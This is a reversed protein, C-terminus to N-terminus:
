TALEDQNLELYIRMLSRDFDDNSIFDRGHLVQWNDVIILNNDWKIRIIKDVQLKISANIKQVLIRAAKNSPFMCNPDFRIHKMSNNINITTYFNKQPTKCLFIADKMLNNIYEDFDDFLNKFPIILTDTQSKKMTKMVILRAPQHWFATDTHLPFDQFGYVSSFTGRYKSALDMKKPHIIDVLNMNPHRIPKGLTTAFSLLDGIDISNFDVQAWGNLLINNLINCM